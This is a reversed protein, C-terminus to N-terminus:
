LVDDTIYDFTILSSFTFLLAFFVYLMHYTGEIGYCSFCRYMCDNSLDKFLFIFYFSFASLFTFFKTRNRLM